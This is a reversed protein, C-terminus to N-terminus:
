RDVSAGTRWQREPRAAQLRRGNVATRPWGTLSREFRIDVEVVDGPPSLVEIRLGSVMGTNSNSNPTTATEFVAQSNAHFPDDPSGEIQDLRSFIPNGVDRFGDAEELAIGQRVPDNNVARAGIRDGIIEDDVHWILVGSGPVFADYEEM